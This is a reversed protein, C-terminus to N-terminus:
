AGSGIAERAAKAMSAVQARDGGDNTIEHAVVLHHKAGLAAQVNYGVIGWRRGHTSM